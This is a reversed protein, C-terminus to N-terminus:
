NLNASINSISDISKNFLENIEQQESAKQSAEQVKQENLSIAQFETYYEPNQASVYQFVDRCVDEGSATEGDGKKCSTITMDMDGLLLFCKDTNIKAKLSIQQYAKLPPLKLDMAVEEDRKDASFNNGMDKDDDFKINDLANDHWSLHMDVNSVNVGTRNYFTAGFECAVTLGDANSVPAIDHIKFLVADDAARASSIFGATLIGACTLIIKNAKSM